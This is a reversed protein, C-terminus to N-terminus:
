QLKFIYGAGRVTSIMSTQDAGCNLKKRLRSVLLDVGRPADMSSNQRVMGGLQERSIIRNPSTLFIDLLRYESSSLQVEIADPTKLSRKSRSLEWRNFRIPSDSEHQETKSAAARRLVSHIRAVVERPEYPKGIYDDAGFELGLIRDHSGSRASLIITPLRWQDCIERMLLLGDAQPLAVELIVLSIRNDAIVQQMQRANTASCTSFGFGTLYKALLDINDQDNDVILIKPRESMGCTHSLCCPRM